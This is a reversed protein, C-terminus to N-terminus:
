RSTEVDIRFVKDSLRLSKFRLLEILPFKFAIKHQMLQHRYM